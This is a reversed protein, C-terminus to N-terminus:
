PGYECITRAKGALLTSDFNIQSLPGSSKEGLVALEVLDQVMDAHSNGERIWM